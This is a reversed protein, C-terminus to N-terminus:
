INHWYDIDFLNVCVEEADEITTLRFKNNYILGVRLLFPITKELYSLHSNTKQIKCIVHAWDSVNLKLETIAKFCDDCKKQYFIDPEYNKDRRRFIRSLLDFTYSLMSKDSLVGRSVKRNHGFIKRDINFFTAHPWTYTYVSDYLYVHIKILIDTGYKRHDITEIKYRGYYGNDDLLKSISNVSSRYSKSFLLENLSLHFKDSKYESNLLIDKM